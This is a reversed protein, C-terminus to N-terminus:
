EDEEGGNSLYDTVWRAKYDDPIPEKGTRIALLYDKELQEQNAEEIILYDNGNM